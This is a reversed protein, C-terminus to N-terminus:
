NQLSEGLCTCVGNAAPGLLIQKAIARMSRARTTFARILGTSAMTNKDNLIKIVSIM